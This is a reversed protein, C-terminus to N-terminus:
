EEFCRRVFPAFEEVRKVSPPPASGDPRRVIAFGEARHDGYRGTALRGEFTGLLESRAERVPPVDAWRVVLDPLLDARSGPYLEPPSCVEAVLPRDTRADRLSHLAEILWREYRRHEDGGPELMGKAERGRLNFRLYGECSAAVAFGPTREWDLGGHYTKRVVDDRVSDPLMSALLQQLRAPVLARIAAVANRRPPPSETATGAASPDTEGRAFRDNARAIVPLLLHEQTDNERMGHTSFVVVTTTSEDIGALVHGVAADVARYVDVLADAPVPTDHEGLRPWLVHGARHPEAFVTLFFDWETTELLWRALEGKKRAGEVLRDRLKALRAPSQELPVDGGMPHRGFRREIERTLEPRNTCFPGLCEQSGWNLVETGRDLRSAPVFPADLVTVRTGRRALDAWFPEIPLWDATVHRLAMAAADWQMPYYIGHEGPSLGTSFSPWVASTLSEAPSALPAPPSEEFLRALHPLRDLHDRIFSVDGADLGILAVKAAPTM